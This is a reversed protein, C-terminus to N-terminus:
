INLNNETKRSLKDLKIRLKCYEETELDPDEHLIKEVARQAKELVAADRFVDALQFQLDGSQRIGFLDGPGRLELDKQAIVFGDGSKHMIELREAQSGPAHVLICYSQDRGRGVRGRLQHLQALGFREANEILMVTANPVNVGVEVVTTSVLIQIQGSVFREMVANKEKAKMRGHLMEITIGPLEDRLSRTYDTVNEADIGESAEVMPCIVYAQHGAQIQERLFAYAKPRYGTNVVATKIRQRGAPLEDVASVDLDGYLIVALTRPIPTASMVLTHPLEGKFSLTQRQKVGFRHQEDTIVLVLKRFEVKDQILAHTGIAIAAEGEALQRYAERKEKATMSGTLLVAHFPLGGQIRLNEWAEYHQRALVETPVMMAGQAGAAAAQILALFALITKGSGVDGQVLRAMVQPRALDEELQRWVRMQAGTLQYPLSQILKETYETKELVYSHTVTERTQRLRKVALIFYLFEEFVLRDRAMKLHAEDEPFHIQRLAFDLAALEYESRLGEPLDEQQLDMGELVQKVAKILMNETLGATLPYVPRLHRQLEQYEAPSFIRPQTLTKNRGKQRILGRFIYPKGATVQNKLYPMNFWTVPIPAEDQDSIIQGVTLKFRGAYRVTLPKELYGFIAATEGDCADSVSVPEKYQEYARPYFSILDELTLIGAAAFKQASVSGTGKLVTLPAHM